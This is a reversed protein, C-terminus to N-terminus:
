PDAQIEGRQLQRQHQPALALQALMSDAVPM